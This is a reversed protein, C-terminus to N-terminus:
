VVDACWQGYGLKHISCIMFRDEDETFAKGKTNGYTIKLEQWPNKYREMKSAIANMIDQQRQIKQEGAEISNIIKEHNRLETYRKWFVKAYEKVEDLTKGEVEKAIEPLATRGHRECGRVFASFERKTWSGFGETLLTEREKTEEETLPQPQDFM